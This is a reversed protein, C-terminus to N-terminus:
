QFTDTNKGVAVGGGLIDGDEANILHYELTRMYGDALKRKAGKVVKGTDDVYAGMPQAPETGYYIIIWAPHRQNTRANHFMIYYCEYHHCEKGLGMFHDALDHKPNASPLVRDIYQADIFDRYLQKNSVEIGKRFKAGLSTADRSVIKLVEEHTIDVYVDFGKIHLNTRNKHRLADIEYSVKWLSADFLKQKFLRIPTDDHEAIEHASASVRVDPLRNLGTIDNAIQIANTKDQADAFSSTACITLSFLVTLATFCFRSLM